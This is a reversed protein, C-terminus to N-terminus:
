RLPRRSRVRFPSRRRHRKRDMVGLSLDPSWDPLDRGGSEAIGRSSLAERYFPPITHHHVDIRHAETAV